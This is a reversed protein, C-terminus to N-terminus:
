VAAAPLAGICAECEGCLNALKPYLCLCDTSWCFWTNSIRATANDVVDYSTKSKAACVSCPQGERELGACDFAETLSQGLANFLGRKINIIDCGDVGSYSTHFIADCHVKCLYVHQAHYSGGEDVKAKVPTM